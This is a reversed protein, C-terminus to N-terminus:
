VDHDGGSGRVAMMVMPNSGTGNISVRVNGLDVRALYTYQSKNVDYNYFYKFINAKCAPALSMNNERVAM